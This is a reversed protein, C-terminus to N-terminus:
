GYKDSDRDKNVPSQGHVLTHFACGSRPSQQPNGSLPRNCAQKECNGKVDGPRRIRDVTSRGTGVDRDPYSYKSCEAARVCQEDVAYSGGFPRVSPLLTPDLEESLRLAM